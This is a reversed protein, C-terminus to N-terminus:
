RYRTGPHEGQLMRHPLRDLPQSPCYTQQSQRTFQTANHNLKKIETFNYYLEDISLANINREYCKTLMKLETIDQDQIAEKFPEILYIIWHNLLITVKVPTVELDDTLNRVHSKTAPGTCSPCYSRSCPSGGQASKIPTYIHEQIVEMTKWNFQNASYTSM